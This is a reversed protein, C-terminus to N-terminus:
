LGIEGPALHHEELTAVHVSIAAAMRTKGSRRGVVAWLEDVREDPPARDGAVAKFHELDDGQLPLGFAARLVARWITWSEPDGLAAGLLNPDTLAISRVLRRSTPRMTPVRVRLLPTRPEDHPVRIRAIM